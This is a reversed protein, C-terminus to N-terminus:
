EYKKRMESFFTDGDKTASGTNVDEISENVLKAIQIKAMYEEFVKMSMLVIDGYGNKTVFIPENSNNCKESIAATNKLDKIPIIQPM